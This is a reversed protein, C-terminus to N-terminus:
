DDDWTEKSDCQKKEEESLPAEEKQHNQLTPAEKKQQNKSTM